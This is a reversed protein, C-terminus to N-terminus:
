GKKVIDRVKLEVKEPIEVNLLMDVFVSELVETVVAKVDGDLTLQIGSATVRLQYDGKGLNIR